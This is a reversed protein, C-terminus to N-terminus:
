QQQETPSSVEITNYYGILMEEWTQDGWRVTATPDPNYKNAASNDFHAIVKLTTGKPMFKPEALRYSTQWNFDYKPVHLVTEERGDPYILKYTVDKGRVHMHPYVSSLYSDKDMTRQATVEYNPHGPPIVFSNNPMSGGGGTRLKAPPEKALVVGIETQDTVEQGITTYHMQLVIESGAPIKRAVGEEFLEYVRGPVYGGIGGGVERRTRDRTTRPTPDVPQGTGEVLDSIIHHVVRRDTPKLEIGRVWIDEKLNTPVTIYTYPVLGDAPVTFPRVMKFILDPKGISWGESFEPMPPLDTKSGEPAGADVWAAITDIEAQKLSMDNAFKGVNPDAHWPPMERRVVRQKIARAWPRVEEFTRLAMPAMSTPRHCEVCNKYLIPAVDKSFTPASDAAAAPAPRMVLATAMTVMGWLGLTRRALRM